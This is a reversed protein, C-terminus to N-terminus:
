LVDCSVETNSQSDTEPARVTALSTSATNASGDALNVSCLGTNVNSRDLATLQDSIVTDSDMLMGDAIHPLTPFLAFYQFLPSATSRLM